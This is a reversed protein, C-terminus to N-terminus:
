GCTFMVLISDIAQLTYVMLLTMFLYNDPGALTTNVGNFTCNQFVLDRTFNTTGVNTLWFYRAVTAAGDAQFTIGDFTTYVNGVVKYMYNTAGPGNNPSVFVANGPQAPDRRIVVRKTPSAGPIGQVSATVQGLQGQTSTYSGPRVNFTVPGLIGGYTLAITVATPNNFWNTPTQTGGVWYEGSNLAPGVFADLTNNNPNNDGNAFQGKVSAAPISVQIRYPQLPDTINLNSVLPIIVSGGAGIPTGYTASVPPVVNSGDSVKTVSANYQCETM